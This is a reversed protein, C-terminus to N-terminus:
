NLDQSSVCEERGVLRGIANEVGGKQWPAYRDGRVDLNDAIIDGDTVYVSFKVVDEFSMNAAGLITGIRDFIVHIQEKPTDPITGDLRAGVQGNCFLWRAHPPVETAHGANNSHARVQENLTHVKLM